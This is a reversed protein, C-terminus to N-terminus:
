SKCRLTSTSVFRKSANKERFALKKLSQVNKQMWGSRSFTTTSTKKEKSLQQVTFFKLLADNIMFQFRKLPIAGTLLRCPWAMSM